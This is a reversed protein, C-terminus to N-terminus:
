IDKSSSLFDDLIMAKQTRTLQGFDYNPEKTITRLVEHLPKETFEQLNGCQINEKLSNNAYITFMKKEVESPQWDDAIRKAEERSIGHDIYLLELEQKKDIIQKDYWDKFNYIQEREEKTLLMEPFKEEKNRRTKEKISEVKQLTAFDTHVTFEKDNITIM